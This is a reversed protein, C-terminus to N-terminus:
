NFAINYSFLTSNAVFRETIVWVISSRSHVSFQLDTSCPLRIEALRVFRQTDSASKHLKILKRQQQQSDTFSEDPRVIKCTAADQPLVSIM